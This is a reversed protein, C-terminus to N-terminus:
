ILLLLLIFLLLFHSLLYFLKSSSLIADHFLHICPLSFPTMPLHLHLGVFHLRPRASSFTSPARGDLLLPLVSMHYIARSRRSSPHQAFQPPTNTFFYPSPSFFFSAVHSFLYPKELVRLQRSKNTLEENM